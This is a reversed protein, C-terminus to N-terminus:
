ADKIRIDLTIGFASFDFIPGDSALPTYDASWPQAACPTPGFAAPGDPLFPAIVDMLRQQWRDIAARATPGIAIIGTEPSVAQVAGSDAILAVRIVLM